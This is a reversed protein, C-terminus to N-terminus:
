SADELWEHMHTVTSRVEDADKAPLEWEQAMAVLQKGLAVFRKSVPTLLPRASEKELVAPAIRGVRRVSGLMTSLLLKDMDDPDHKDATENLYAEVQNCVDKIEGVAQFDAPTPGRREDNAIADALADNLTPELSSRGSAKGLLDVVEVGLAEAVRELTRLNPNGKGQELRNLTAPDMDAMVALKVQSLGKERRLERIREM